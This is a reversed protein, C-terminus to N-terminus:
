SRVRLILGSGGAGLAGGQLWCGLLDDIWPFSQIIQPNDCDDCSSGFNDNFQDYEIELSGIKQRKVYTGAPSSNGGGSGPFSAPSEVYKIALIVESKQIKLPIGNCDSTVGDCVGDKRPWKLAQEATCRDGVFNLTELWSTATILSMNKEDDTKNIWEEGGAMNAALAVAEALSIYSNATAGSLTSDLTPAM